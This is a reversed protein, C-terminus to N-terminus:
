TTRDCKFSSDTSDIVEDKLITNVQGNIEKKKSYPIVRSHLQYNPM